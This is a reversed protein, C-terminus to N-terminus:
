CLTLRRPSGVRTDKEVVQCVKKLPPTNNTQEEKTDESPLKATSIRPQIVQEVWSWNYRLQQHQHINKWKNQKFIQWRRKFLSFSLWKRWKHCRLAPVGPNNNDAGFMLDHAPTTSRSWAHRSLIAFYPGSSSAPTSNKIMDAVYLYYGPMVVLKM